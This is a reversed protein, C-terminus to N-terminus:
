IYRTLTILELIPNASIQSRHPRVDSFAHCRGPSQCSLENVAGSVDAAALAFNTGVEAVMGSESEHEKAHSSYPSSKFIHIPEVFTIAFTPDLMVSPRLLSPSVPSLLMLFRLGDFSLPRAKM